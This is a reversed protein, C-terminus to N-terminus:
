NRGQSTNIQAIFAEDGLLEVNKGITKGRSEPKTGFIVNATFDFYDPIVFSIPKNGLNCIVFFAKEESNCSRIFAFANSQIGVPIFLGKILTPEERRLNLLTRYFNLFSDADNKQSEVNVNPYDEAVANWPMAVSFGAHLESSWQMPSRQPDRKQEARDKREIQAADRMGIEDGYYIIPTGKNTLMLLAAVRAQEKGIRSAIRAHDHNSLVWNPWANEPLSAEYNCIGNYFFFRLRV